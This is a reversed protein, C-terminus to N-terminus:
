KERKLRCGKKEGRIWLRVGIGCPEQLNGWAWQQCMSVFDCLSHLQAGADTTTWASLSPGWSDGSVQQKANQGREWYYTMSIGRHPCFQEINKTKNECSWLKAIHYLIIWETVTGINLINNWKWNKDSFVFGCYYMRLGLVDGYGPLM